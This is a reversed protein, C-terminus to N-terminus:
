SPYDSIGVPSYIEREFDNISHRLEFVRASLSEYDDDLVSTLALREELYWLEAYADKLIAKYRDQMRM